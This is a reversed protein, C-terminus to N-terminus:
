IEIESLSEIKRFRVTGNDDVIENWMYAPRSYMIGTVANQYIVVEEMTESNFGIGLVQYLNGKFHQYLGKEPNKRKEM